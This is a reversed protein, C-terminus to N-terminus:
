KDNIKDLRKLKKKRLLYKESFEVKCLCELGYREKTICDNAHSDGNILYHDVSHECVNVYRCTLYGRCRVKM